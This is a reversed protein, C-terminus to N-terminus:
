CFGRREIGIVIMKHYTAGLRPRPVDILGKISAAEGLAELVFVLLNPLTIGFPDLDSVGRPDSDSAKELVIVGGDKVAAAWARLAKAPDYAHDLSNSYLVDARGEWEPKLEHFDAQITMPFQAATSSIETGIVECKFVDSFVRQEFGNRTGHCLVFQPSMGRRQLWQCIFTLNSENTWVQALKARNGKEQELRYNELDYEEGNNRWDALRYGGQERVNRRRSWNPVAIIQYGLRYLSRRIANKLLSMLTKEVLM